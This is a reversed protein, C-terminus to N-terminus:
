KLVKLLLNLLDGTIKVGLYILLVSKGIEFRSIFKIGKYVALILIIDLLFALLFALVNLM